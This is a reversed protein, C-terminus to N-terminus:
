AEQQQGALEEQTSAINAIAENLELIFKAKASRMVEMQANLNAKLEKFQFENKDMTAQLEDVLDKFKGWMLSMNDHLLGCDVPGGKCSFQGGKVTKQVKAKQAPPRPFSSKPPPAIGKKKKTKKPADETQNTKADTEHTM